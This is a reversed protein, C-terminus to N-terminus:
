YYFEGEINQHHVWSSATPKPLEPKVECLGEEVKDADVFREEDDEEKLDKFDEEEGDQLWIM